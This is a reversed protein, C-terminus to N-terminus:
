RRRRYNPHGPPPPLRVRTGRQWRPKVEFVTEDFAEIWAKEMREGNMQAFFDLASIFHNGNIVLKTPHAKSFAAVEIEVVKEIGEDTTVKCARGVYDKLDPFEMRIRLDNRSM